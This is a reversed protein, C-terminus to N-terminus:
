VAIKEHMGHGARFLLSNVPTKYRSMITLRAVGKSDQVSGVLKCYNHIRSGGLVESSLVQLLGLRGQGMPISYASELHDRRKIM